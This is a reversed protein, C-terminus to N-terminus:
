RTAAIRLAQALDYVAAAYFTSRNYRTIVYFNQLGVRYETPKDPTVLDILAGLAAMNPAPSARIAVGAAALEALTRSPKIGEAVLPAADANGVDAAFLVPEGSAWGHSKLFNAVSGIADTPSSRLLAVGDGDFDVAWRRYSNPMFQPIGIAGAYSGRVELADLGAERSFILFAELESRFYDARPPYVFALTSLADIVRWKGMNRGYYTEVGIIAVIFERPVGYGSEARSLAEAHQEAFRVGDAIHRDNVFIPRYNRWSRVRPSSPPRIAKLIEPQRTTLAFLAYLEGEPFGHREVMERIFERVEPRNAYGREAARTQAMPAFSVACALLAFVGALLQRM